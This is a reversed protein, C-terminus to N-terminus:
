RVMPRFIVPYNVEVTAGDRTKPFRWSGVEDSLCTELAPWRPTADLIQVAAVSGDALITWRLQVRTRLGSARRLEAEYCQRLGPRHQAVVRRIVAEPLAAEDRVLTEATELDVEPAREKRPGLVTGLAFGADDGGLEGSFVEVVSRSAEPTKPPLERGGLVSPRAVELSEGVADAIDGIASMGDLAAFAEGLQAHTLRVTKKDDRADGIRRSGAPTEDITRQLEALLRQSRDSPPEPNILITAFRDRRHEHLLEELTAIEGFGLGPGTLPRHTESVAVATSVVFLLLCAAAAMPMPARSRVSFAAVAASESVVGEAEMRDGLVPPVWGGMSELDGDVWALTEREVDRLPTHSRVSSLLEDLREETVPVHPRDHKM